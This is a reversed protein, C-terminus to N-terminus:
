IKWKRRVFVLAAVIVAGGSVLSLAKTRYKKRDHRQRRVTQLWLSYDQWFTLARRIQRWQRWAMVGCAAFLAAYVSLFFTFWFSVVRLPHLWMSFGFGAICLAAVVPVFGVLFIKMRLTTKEKLTIYQTEDDHTFLWYNQVFANAGLHKLDQNDLRPYCRLQRVSWLPLMVHIHEYWAKCLQESRLTKRRRNELEDIRSIANLYDREKRRKRDSSFFSILPSILKMLMKLSSFADSM